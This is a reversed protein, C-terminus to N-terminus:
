KLYTCYLKNLDPPTRPPGPPGTTACHRPVPIEDLDLYVFATAATDPEIDHPFTDARNGVSGIDIQCCDSPDLRLEPPCCDHGKEVVEVAMACPVIALSLFVALLLGAARRPTSTQSGLTLGQIM